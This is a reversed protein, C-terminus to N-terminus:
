YLQRYDSRTALYVLDLQRHSIGSAESEFRRYAFAAIYCVSRATLQDAWAALDIDVAADHYGFAVDMESGLVRRLEAKRILLDDLDPDFAFPRQYEVFHHRADAVFIGRIHVHIIVLDVGGRDGACVRGTQYNFSRLMAFHGAKGSM